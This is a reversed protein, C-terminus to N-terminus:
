TAGLVKDGTVVGGVLGELINSKKVVVGFGRVVESIGVSIRSKGHRSESNTFRVM